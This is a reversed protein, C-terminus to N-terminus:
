KKELSQLWQDRSFQGETFFTELAVADKADLAAKVRELEVQLDDISRAIADANTLAIDRWMPPSGSALRTTDRFGAGLFMSERARPKALVADVLASAVVHPLHSTRAVITDHDEATLSIVNSGLATWFNNVTEVATPDSQDTPTVACAADVFLDGRAHVVGIKESGCMPHSGVFRPLVPEVERVVGAKVSGVDTIVSEAALHPKLQAALEGMDGVPTCLIILSADAVAAALDQTAEDVVGASLCEKVSEARRVFGVVRGCVGRQKVALGISGGLLGVGVLTIKPYDM